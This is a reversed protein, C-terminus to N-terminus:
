LIDIADIDLDRNQGDVWALIRPYYRGAPVDTIYEVFKKTEGAALEMPPTLSLPCVVTPIANTLVPEDAYTSDEYLAVNAVSACSREIVIKSSRTGANTATIDFRITSGPPNMEAVGSTVKTATAKLRVWSSSETPVSSCGTLLTGILVTAIGTRTLLYRAALM